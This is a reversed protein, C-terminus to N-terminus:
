YNRYDKGEMENAIVGTQHPLQEREEDWSGPTGEMSWNAGQPPSSIVDGRVLWFASPGLGYPLYTYKGKELISPKRTTDM